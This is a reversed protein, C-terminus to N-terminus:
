GRSLGPFLATQDLATRKCTPFHALSHRPREKFGPRKPRLDTRKGNYQVVQEDELLRNTVHSWLIIPFPLQRLPQLNNPLPGFSPCHPPICACQPPHMKAKDKPYSLTHTHIHKYWQPLPPLMVFYFNQSADRVRKVQFVM